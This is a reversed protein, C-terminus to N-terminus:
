GVAVIEVTSGATFEQAASFPRLTRWSEDPYTLDRLFDGLLTLQVKYGEPNDPFFEMIAAQFYQRVRGLSAGRALLMGPAGIDARADTKPYGFSNTGGFRDFFQRFGVLQGAIDFDSIKHGWPGLPQGEHPNTIHPEVGMDVSGGAGGGMYDWTLRRETVWTGGLDLRKHFDVVGRQYYQTLSGSTEEFVESIPLGWREIGGTTEFHRKFEAVLTQGDVVVALNPVNHRLDANAGSPDVVYLNSIVTANGISSAVVSVPTAQAVPTEVAPMAATTPAPAGGAAWYVWIGRRDTGIFINRDNAFDPSVVMSLIEVNPLGTSIPHWNAGGDVSRLVAGNLGAVSAFAMRSSAFDPALAVTSAAQTMSTPSWVQGGDRTIFVGGDTAALVTRDSAYSPSLAVQRVTLNGLGSNVVDWSQGRTVSKYVGSGDSAAFVTSDANFTPSLAISTVATQAGVGLVQNWQSGALVSRALGGAGGVFVTLDGRTNHFVPSTAVILPDAILRSEEIGSNERIWTNGTGKFTRYVGEGGLGVFITGDDAYSPSVTMTQVDVNPLNWSINSWTTGRNESKLLGSQTAAFLTGDSRYNNSFGFAPVGATNLGSGIESWNDGGNTSRFVGGQGGGVFVTKDARFDNSSSIATVSLRNIGDNSEEWSRGKDRSRLFGGETTGAFVQNDAEYTPPFAIVEVSGKDSLGVSSWKDGRTGTRYLGHGSTGLFALGDSQFKPGITVFRISRGAPLGSNKDSWTAGSDESRFVHTKTWVLLALHGAVGPAVQIGELNTRTLGSSTVSRWSAGSDNSRYVGLGDTTLFVSQNAEFAPAFAVGTVAVDPLGASVKAWSTAGDTSRYLGTPTAALLLSDFEFRPSVALRRVRLDLLGANREQFTNGADISRYVGGSDSAFFVNKSSSYFPTAQMATSFGAPITGVSVWSNANGIAGANGPMLTVVATLLATLVAAVVLSVRKRVTQATPM